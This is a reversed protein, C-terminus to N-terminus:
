EEAQREDLIIQSVSVGDIVLPQVNRRKWSPIESTFESAEGDNSRGGGLRGGNPPPTLGFADTGEGWPPPNPHPRNLSANPRTLEPAEGDNSRGGGLRGGNTPPTFGVTDTGEGMPPPNPHPRSLVLIERRIVELVAETEQFVQTNWFRIVKFGRSNLFQTRQQDAEMNEAHQGGDLEIILMADFSVFDVIYPGIPNQRRFKCGEIQEHRLYRWLHKEADTINKRLRRANDTQTM